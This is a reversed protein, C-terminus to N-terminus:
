RAEHDLSARRRSHTLLFRSSESCILYDQSPIMPSYFMFATAGAEERDKEDYLGVQDSTQVKGVLSIALMPRVASCNQERSDISQDGLSGVMVVEGDVVLTPSSVGAVAM